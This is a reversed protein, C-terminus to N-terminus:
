GRGEYAAKLPNIVDRLTQLKIWRAKLGLCDGASPSAVLAHLTEPMTSRLKRMIRVVHTPPMLLCGPCSQMRHTSKHALLDLLDGPEKQASNSGCIVIQDVKPQQCRQM